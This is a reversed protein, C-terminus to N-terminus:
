ALPADFTRLAELLRQPAEQAVCHGVADFQWASVHPILSVARAAMEKYIPWSKEATAVRVPCDIGTLWLFPNGRADGAYVQEMAEFIPRLIASEIEPTCRLRVRGNELLAFGHRVYALLSTETWDAFAPAARYREFATDFSDFEAQRRLVGQVAASAWDSLGASAGRSKRPDMVTPEMVFLRSFREPLLKAALLLDTAGASHGIGYIESLDLAEIVRRVDDAYDQFHYRDAAPKHSGGHGRRDLGYVTYAAALGRAVEDWVDAVFGTGHLLLAPPKRRDGETWQVLAIPEDSGISFRHQNIM